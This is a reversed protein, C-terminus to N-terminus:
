CLKKKLKDNKYTKSNDFADLRVKAHLSCLAKHGVNSLKLYVFTTSLYLRLERVVTVIYYHVFNM